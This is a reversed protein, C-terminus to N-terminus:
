DKDNSEEELTIILNDLLDIIRALQQDLKFGLEKVTGILEQTSKSQYHALRKQYDDFAQSDIKM